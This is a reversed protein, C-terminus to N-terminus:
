LCFYIYEDGLTGMQLYIYIYTQFYIIVKIFKATPMMAQRYFRSSRLDYWANIAQVMKTQRYLLSTHVDYCTNTPRAIKTVRAM